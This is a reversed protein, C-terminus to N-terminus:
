GVSSRDGRSANSVLIVRTLTGGNMGIREAARVQWSRGLADATVYLAEAFSGRESNFGSISYNQPPVRKGDGSYRAFADVTLTGSALPFALSAKGTEALVGRFDRELMAGMRDSDM